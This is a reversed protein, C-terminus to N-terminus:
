RSYHEAIQKGNIYSEDSWMYRWVGYLGFPIIDNKKLWAHIINTNINILPIPYSYKVINSKFILFDNENKIKFFKKLFKKSNNEIDKLNIKEDNRRFIELQGYYFNKNQKLINSLVTMRAADINKDYFYCLHHDVKTRKKLSFNICITSTYKLKKLETKVKNPINKILNLYEPLPVTSFLKNYKFKKKNSYVTKNKVDIKDIKNKYNVKYKRFKKKLFIIFVM